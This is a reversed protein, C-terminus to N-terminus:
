CGPKRPPASQSCNSHQSSHKCRSAAFLSGGIQRSRHPRALQRLSSSAQLCVASGCPTLKASWACLRVAHGQETLAAASLGSGALSSCSKRTHPVSLKTHPASKQNQM